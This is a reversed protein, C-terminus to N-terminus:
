RQKRERGKHEGQSRTSEYDGAERAQTGTARYARNRRIWLNRHVKSFLRFFSSMSALHEEDTDSRARCEKRTPNSTGTRKSTPKNELIKRRKPSVAELIASTAKAKGKRLLEPKSTPQNVSSNSHLQSAPRHTPEARVIEMARPKLVPTEFGASLQHLRMKDKEPTSIDWSARIARGENAQAKTYRTQSTVFEQVRSEEHPTTLLELNSANLVAPESPHSLCPINPSELIM